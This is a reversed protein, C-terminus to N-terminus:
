ASAPPEPEGSTIKTLLKQFDSQWRQELAEDLQKQVSEDSLKEMAKGMGRENADTIKKVVSLIVDRKKKPFLEAIATLLATTAPEIFDGVLAQGFQEATLNQAVAQSKCAVYLVDVLLVVDESLRQFGQGDMAIPDFNCERRIAAVKNADLNVLWERNANDKFTPMYSVEHLTFSFLGGPGM